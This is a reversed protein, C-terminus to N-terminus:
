VVGATKTQTTHDTEAPEYRHRKPSLFTFLFLRIRTIVTLVADLYM